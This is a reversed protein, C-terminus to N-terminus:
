IDPLSELWPIVQAEELRCASQLDGPFGYLSCSHILHSMTQVQGCECLDDDCFGFRKRTALCLGTMAVARNLRVRLARSLNPFPVLGAAYGFPELPPLTPAVVEVPSLIDKHKIRNRARRVLGMKSIMRERVLMRREAPLPLGSLPPLLDVPTSRLCGSVARSTNRLATDVKSVHTSHGWVAACYEAISYCLSLATTKLTPIDAGWSKFSIKRLLNNRTNIKKSANTCHAKYSLTRDLTVGLYLPCPQHSLTQGGMRVNLEQNAKRNNLHFVSSITKGMNPVINWKRYYECMTDVDESLKDELEKFSKGKLALGTDDAYIFKQSKTVPVDNTYINYLTPALVSGQPLGNKLRYFRTHGLSDYVSFSRNSIM